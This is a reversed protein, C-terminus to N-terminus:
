GDLYVCFSLSTGRLNVVNGEFGTLKAHGDGQHVPRAAEQDNLILRNGDDAVELKNRSEVYTASAFNSSIWAALRITPDTCWAPNPAEVVEM